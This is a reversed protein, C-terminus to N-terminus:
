LSSLVFSVKALSTDLVPINAEFAKNRLAEVLLGDIFRLMLLASQPSFKILDLFAQGDPYRIEPPVNDFVNDDQMGFALGTDVVLGEVGVNIGLTASLDYGFERQFFFSSSNGASVFEPYEADGDCTSQPCYALKALGSLAVDGSGGAEIMGFSVTADLGGAVALEASIPDLEITSSGSLTVNLRAGFMLSGALMFEGDLKVDLADPLTDLLGDADFGGNVEFELLACFLLSVSPGVAGDVESIDISLARDVGECLSGSPRSVNFVAADPVPPVAEIDPANPTLIEQLAM